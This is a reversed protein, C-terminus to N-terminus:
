TCAPKYPQGTFLATSDYEARVRDRAHMTAGGCPYSVQVQVSDTASVLNKHATFHFWGSETVAMTCTLDTTCSTGPSGTWSWGDPTYSGGNNATVTATVTVTSGGMVETSDASVAVSIEDPPQESGGGT